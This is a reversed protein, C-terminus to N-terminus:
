LPSAPDGPAAGLVDAARGERLGVEVLGLSGVYHFLRGPPAEGFTAASLTIEHSRVRVGGVPPRLSTIVNGFSDVWLVRNEAAAGRLPSPSPGVTGLSRLADGAALRGAAPAFVDRGEFTRSAHSPRRLEVTDPLHPRAGEVLLAFLGNDPGVYFSGALEFALARRSTGVGPDVVALHVSGRPFDRTGAWVLFGGVALDFPPVSHSVDVLTAEPCAALVAAKM